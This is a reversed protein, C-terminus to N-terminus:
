FIIETRQSLPTSALLSPSSKAPTWPYWRWWRPRRALGSSRITRIAAHRADARRANRPTSQVAGCGAILLSASLSCGRSSGNLEAVNQRGGRREEEDGRARNSRGRRRGGGRERSVRQEEVTVRAILSEARAGGSREAVLYRCLAKANQPNDRVLPHWLSEM